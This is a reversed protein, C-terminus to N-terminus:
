PESRRRERSVNKEIKDEKGDKEEKFEFLMPGRVLREEGNLPTLGYLERKIKVEKEYKAFMEDQIGLLAMLGLFMKSMDKITVTMMRLLHYDWTESMTLQLSALDQQLLAVPNDVKADGLSSPSFCGIRAGYETIFDEFLTRLRLGFDEVAIESEKERMSQFVNGLPSNLLALSKEIEALRKEFKQLAIESALSIFHKDLERPFFAHLTEFDRNSQWLSAIKQRDFSDLIASNVWAGPRLVKAFSNMDRVQLAYEVAIKKGISALCVGLMAPHFEKLSHLMSLLYAATFQQFFPLAEEPYADQFLRDVKATDGWLLEEADKFPMAQMLGFAYQDYYEFPLIASVLFEAEMFETLTNPFYFEMGERTAEVFQRKRDPRIVNYIDKIQSAFDIFTHNDVEIWQYVFRAMMTKSEQEFKESSLWNLYGAVQLSDLDEIKIKIDSGLLPMVKKKPFLKAILFLQLSERQKNIKVSLFFDKIQLPTAREAFVMFPLREKMASGTDKVKDIVYVCATKTTLSEFESKDVPGFVDVEKGEAIQMVKAYSLLAMRRSLSVMVFQEIRRPPEVSLGDDKEEVLQDWMFEKDSGFLKISFDFNDSKSTINDLTAGQLMTMFDKLRHEMIYHLYNIYSLAKLLPERVVWQAIYYLQSNLILINAHVDESMPIGLDPAYYNLISTVYHTEQGINTNNIIGSERIKETILQRARECRIQMHADGANRSLQMCAFGLYDVIAAECRLFDVNVLERVVDQRQERDLQNIEKEEGLSSARLAHNLRMLLPIGDRYITIRDRNVIVDNGTYTILRTSLNNINDINVILNHEAIWEKLENFEKSLAASYPAWSESEIFEKLKEPYKPVAVEVKVEEQKPVEFLFPTYAADFVLNPVTQMGAFYAKVDLCDKMLMVASYFDSSMEIIKFLFEKTFFETFIKKRREPNEYLIRTLWYKSNVVGQLNLEDNRKIVHMLPGVFESRINCVYILGPDCSELVYAVLNSNLAYTQMREYDVFQSSIIRQLISGSILYLDLDQMRHLQFARDVGYKALNFHISLIKDAESLVPNILFQMIETYFRSMCHEVVTQLTIAQECEDRFRQVIVRLHDPDQQNDPLPYGYEGMVSCTLLAQELAAAEDPTRTSAYAVKYLATLVMVEKVAFIVSDSFVPSGRTVQYFHPSLGSM